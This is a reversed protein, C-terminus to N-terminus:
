TDLFALAREVRDWVIEEDADETKVMEVEGETTWKIYADVTNLYETFVQAHARKMITYTDDVYHRWLRPLHRAM